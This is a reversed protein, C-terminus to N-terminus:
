TPFGQENFVDHYYTSYVGSTESGIAAGYIGINTPPPDPTGPPPTNGDSYVDLVDGNALTFLIGYNDLYGGYSYGTCVEPSGGPYYLNDYSLLSYSADVYPTGVGTWWSFSPPILPDTPIELPPLDNNAVFGTIAQTGITSDSFSGTAGIVSWAGAPDGTVTDPTITITGYG